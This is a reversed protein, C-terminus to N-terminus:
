SPHCHFHQLAWCRMLKIVLLILRHMMHQPPSSCHLLCFALLECSGCVKTASVFDMNGTLGSHLAVKFHRTLLQSVNLEFLGVRVRTVSLEQYAWLTSREGSYQIISRTFAKAVIFVITSDGSRAETVVIKNRPIRLSQHLLLELMEQCDKRTFERLDNTVTVEVLIQAKTVELATEVKTLSDQMTVMDDYVDLYLKYRELLNLALAGAEEPLCGVMTKLLYTDEWRVSICLRELLEAVTLMPTLAEVDGEALELQIATQAARVMSNSYQANRELIDVVRVYTNLYLAKMLICSDLKMNKLAKKM